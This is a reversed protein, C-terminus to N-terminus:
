LSAAPTVAANLKFKSARILRSSPASKSKDLKSCSARQFKSSRRISICTRQVRLSHTFIGAAFTRTISLSPSVIQVSLECLYRCVSTSAIASRVPNRHSPCHTSSSHGKACFRSIAPYLAGEIATPSLCGEDPTQNVMVGGRGRHKEYTNM